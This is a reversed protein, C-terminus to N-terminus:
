VVFVQHKYPLEEKILAFHSTTFTFHRFSFDM